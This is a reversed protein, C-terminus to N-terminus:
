QAAVRAWARRAAQHESWPRETTGFCMTPEHGKGTLLVTDGARSRSFALGMAEERDPERFFDRGEVGGAELCGAAIEEMIAQLDETRPDEATLVAEDALEAAIRGMLPRKLRDRLGACGFVVRLRGSTLPRVARLARELSAPTHAFDVIVTFPQGMELREMRGIVGGFSGVGQRIAEAEVGVALGVAVAALVNHANYDGVLPSELRLPGAPTEVVLRLGDPRVELERGVVAPPPPRVELGYSWVQDAPIAAFDDYSPDEANLVSLKPQGRRRPTRALLRFLLAKAERYAEWSGHYDLHEHTVNTLVAADVATGELRGQHLGHSTAEVVAYAAGKRVMRALYDQLDEALPTSVHAGTELQESGIGAAVTSVYGARRGSTELLHHILSATTTKGDTGTVGIVVLRRSPHGRLAAALWGLAVRTSAVRALPLSAPLGDREVVAAVAGRRAAQALHDHGDARLGTLAVFLDGGQVRRSDSVVRGVEPDETPAAILGPLDELLQSLRM